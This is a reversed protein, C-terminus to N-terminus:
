AVVQDESRSQKSFLARAILLAFDLVLLLVIAASASTM